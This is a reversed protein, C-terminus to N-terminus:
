VKDNGMGQLLPLNRGFYVGEAWDLLRLWGHWLRKWGTKLCGHYDEAIWRCSYWAIRESADQLTLVPVSTPLLWELPEVGGPPNSEWTRVACRKRTSINNM